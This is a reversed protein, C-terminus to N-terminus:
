IMMQRPKIHLPPKLSSGPPACAWLDQGPGGNKLIPEITIESLRQQRGLSSPGPRGLYKNRSGGSDMHDCITEHNVTQLMRM